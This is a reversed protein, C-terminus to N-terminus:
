RPNLILPRSASKATASSSEITIEYLKTEDIDPLEMSTGKTFYTQIQNNDLTRIKVAYREAEGVKSWSLTKNIYNLIEPFELNSKIKAKSSDVFGLRLGDNDFNALMRQKQGRSFMIMCNDFVYDMYNMFLEGNETEDCESLKPFEPCEGNSYKQSPTDDVYDNTCIPSDDEKDGWLHLLGLWHGVEHTATRGKNYDAVNGRTGFYRSNIVVGDTLAEKDWPFSAYGFLDGKRITDIINGVWVNLYKTSLYKGMDHGGHKSFKISDGQKYFATKRTYTNTIAVLKFRIGTDGAILEKFKEPVNTIDTNEGAFDENLIKIQNRIQAKTFKQNKQSYVIHVVVPITIRAPDNTKLLLKKKFTETKFKVEPFKQLFEQSHSYTGCNRQACICNTYLTFLLSVLLLLKSMAILKNFM